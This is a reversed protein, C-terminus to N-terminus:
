TKPPFFSLAYFLSCCPDTQTCKIEKLEFATELPFDYYVASSSYDQGFLIPFQKAPLMKSNGLCTNDAIHKKSFTAANATEQKEEYKFPYKKSNKERRFRIFLKLSEKSIQFHLTSQKAAARVLSDNSGACSPGQKM